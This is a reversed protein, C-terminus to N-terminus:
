KNVKTNLLPFINEDKEEDQWFCKIWWLPCWLVFSSQLLKQEDRIARPGWHFAALSASSRRPIKSSSTAVRMRCPWGLWNMGGMAKPHWSGPHQHAACPPHLQWLRGQRESHLPCARGSRRSRRGEAKDQRHVGSRSQEREQGNEGGEELSWSPKTNRPIQCCSPKKNIPIFLRLPWM